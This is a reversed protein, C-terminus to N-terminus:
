RQTRTSRRIIQIQINTSNIFILTKPLHKELNEWTRTCHYQKGCSGANLVVLSTGFLEQHGNGIPVPNGKESVDAMFSAVHFLMFYRSIHFYTYIIFVHFEMTVGTM